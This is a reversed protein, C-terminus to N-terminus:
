RVASIAETSGASVPPPQNNQISELERLQVTVEHLERKTADLMSKMHAVSIRLNQRRRTAAKAFTSYAPHETDKIRTRAEEAAIQRDLDAIMNDFDRIMTGFLAVRREKENVEFQKRRFLRSAGRIKSDHM